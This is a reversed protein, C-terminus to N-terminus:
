DALPVTELCYGHESVNFLVDDLAATSIGEIGFTCGIAQLKDATEGCDPQWNGWRDQILTISPSFMADLRDTMSM